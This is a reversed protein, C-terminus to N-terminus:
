ECFNEDNKGKKAKYEELIKKHELYPYTYAFCSNKLLRESHLHRAEPDKRSFSPHILSFGEGVGVLANAAFNIANFALERLHVCGKKGGLIESVKKMVGREIKLGVLGEALEEVVQCIAFPGIVLEAKSKEIIKTESNIGLELHILHGIDSMIAEIVGNGNDLLFLNISIDRKSLLKKEMKEGM